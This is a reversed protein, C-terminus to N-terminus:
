PFDEQSSYNPDSHNKAIYKAILYMCANETFVTQKKCFNWYSYHIGSVGLVLFEINELDGPNPTWKLRLTLIVGAVLWKKAAICRNSNGFLLCFLEQKFFEEFMLEKPARPLANSVSYLSM